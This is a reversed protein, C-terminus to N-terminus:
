SVAVRTLMCDKSFIVLYIFSLMTCPFLYFFQGQSRASGNSLKVVEPLCQFERLKTAENTLDFNNIM